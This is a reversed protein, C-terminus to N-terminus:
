RKSSRDDIQAADDDIVHRPARQDGHSAHDILEAEAQDGGLRRGDLRRETM